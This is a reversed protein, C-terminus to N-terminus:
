ASEKHTIIGYVVAVCGNALGFRGERFDDIKNEVQQRPNKSIHEKKDARYEPSLKM